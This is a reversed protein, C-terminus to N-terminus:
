GEESLYDYKSIIIEIIEVIKEISLKFENMNSVVALLQSYLIENIKKKFNFDMKESHNNIDDRTIEPYRELLKDIEPEILMKAFNIWFDKKTFWKHNIIKDLIYCKEGNNNNYFFTQSLIICNKSNPYNKTKESENLIINLINGLFDIMEKSQEYRNNTRLKSLLILFYEHMKTNKIYGM